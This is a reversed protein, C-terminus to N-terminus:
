AQTLHQTRPSSPGPVQDDGDTDVRRDKQEESESILSFNM